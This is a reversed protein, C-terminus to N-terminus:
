LYEFSSVNDGTWKFSFRGSGPFSSRTLIFPYVFKGSKSLTQFTLYSEMLGYLNHVDKHSYGGYHLM